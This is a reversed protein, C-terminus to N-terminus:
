YSVKLYTFPLNQRAGQPIQPLEETEIAETTEHLRVSVWHHQSWPERPGMCNTAPCQLNKNIVRATHILATFSHFPSYILHRGPPMVHHIDIQKDKESYLLQSIRVLDWSRICFILSLGAVMMRWAKIKGSLVWEMSSCIAKTLALYKLSTSM